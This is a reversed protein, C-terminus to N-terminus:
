QKMQVASIIIKRKDVCSINGAEHLQSIQTLHVKHLILYPKQIDDFYFLVQIVLTWLSKNLACPGWSSSFDSCLRKPEEVEKLAAQLECLWLVRVRVYGVTALQPRNTSGSPLALRCIVTSNQYDHTSSYLVDSRAHPFLDIILIWSSTYLIISCFYQWGCTTEGEEGVWRRKMALCMELVSILLLFWGLSERELLM